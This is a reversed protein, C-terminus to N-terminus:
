YKVSNLCTIIWFFYYRFDYLDGSISSVMIMYLTIISFLRYENKLCRYICFPSFSIIVLFPLTGIIGAELMIELFVNHPYEGLIPLYGGLGYGAILRKRIADISLEYLVDRNALYFTEFILAVVREKLINSMPVYLFCAVCTGVITIKLAKSSFLKKVDFHPISLALLIIGSVFGAIMGGRSGLLIIGCILLFLIVIFQLKKRKNYLYLASVAAFFLIRTTVNPGGIFTTGRDLTLSASAIIPIMYIIGVLLYTDSIIDLINDEITFLNVVFFAFLIYLQLFFLDTIIESLPISSNFGFIILIILFFCSIAMFNRAYTGAKLIKIKYNLAFLFLVPILLIWRAAITSGLLSFDYRGSIGLLIVAVLLLKKVSFKM